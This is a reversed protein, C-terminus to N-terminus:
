HNSHINRHALNRIKKRSPPTLDITYASWLNGFQEVLKIVVCITSVLPGDEDSLCTFRNSETPINLKVILPQLIWISRIVIIKEFHKRTLCQETYFIKSHKCVKNDLFYWKKNNNWPWKGADSNYAIKKKM